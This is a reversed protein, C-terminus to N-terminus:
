RLLYHYGFAALLEIGAVELRYLLTHHVEHEACIGTKECVEYKYVFVVYRTLAAYRRKGQVFYQLLPSAFVNYCVYRAAAGCLEINGSVSHMSCPQAERLFHVFVPALCQTQLELGHCIKYEVVAAAPHCTHETVEALGISGVAALAIHAAQPGLPRCVEIGFRKFLAEVAKEGHNGRLAPEVCTRQTRVEGVGVVSHHRVNGGHYLLARQYGAVM